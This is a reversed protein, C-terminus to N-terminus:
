FLSHIMVANIIKHKRKHPKLLVQQGLTQEDM